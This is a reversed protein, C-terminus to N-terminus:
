VISGSSDPDPGPRAILPRGLYNVLAVLPGQFVVRLARGLELRRCQVSRPLGPRGHGRQKAAPRGAAVAALNNALLDFQHGEFGTGAVLSRKHDVLRM